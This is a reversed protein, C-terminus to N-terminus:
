FILEKGNLKMYDGTELDSMRVVEGRKEPYVGCLSRFAEGVTKATKM